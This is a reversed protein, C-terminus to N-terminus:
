EGGGRDNGREVLKECMESKMVLAVNKEFFQRLSSNKCLYSDNYKMRQSVDFVNHWINDVYHIRYVYEYM